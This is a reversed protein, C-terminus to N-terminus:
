ARKWFLSLNGEKTGGPNVGITGDGATATLTASITAGAPVTTPRLPVGISINIPTGVSMASSYPVWLQDIDTGAVVISLLFTRWLTTQNAVGFRCTASGWVVIPYGPNAITISAGPLQGGPFPFQQTIPVTQCRPDGVTPLAQWTGGFYVWLVGPSDALHSVAGVPPSAWGATRGAANPFQAVIQNAIIPNFDTDVVEEGALWTKHPV